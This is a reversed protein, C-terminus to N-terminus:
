DERGYAPERVVEYDEYLGRPPEPAYMYGIGYSDAYNAPEYCEGDGNWLMVEDASRIM